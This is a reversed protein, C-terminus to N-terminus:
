RLNPHDSHFQRFRLLVKSGKSKEAAQMFEELTMKPLDEEAKGWKAQARLEEAEHALVIAQAQLVQNKDITCLDYALGLRYWLQICWKTPDWEYWRHSFLSM